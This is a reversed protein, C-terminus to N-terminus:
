PLCASFLLTIIGLWRHIFQVTVPNEVANQMISGLKWMGVPMWVGQMKPLTNYIYGAKLGAVFAGFTIQLILLLTFSYWLYNLKSTLVRIRSKYYM